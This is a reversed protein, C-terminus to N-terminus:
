GKMFKIIEENPIELIKIIKKLTKIKTNEENEEIRQLQRTSIKIKEALEEQTLGKETRTEKIM